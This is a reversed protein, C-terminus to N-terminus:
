NKMYLQKSQMFYFSPGLYSIQSVTGELMTDIVLLYSKIFSISMNFSIDINLFCLFFANKMNKQSYKKLHIVKQLMSYIM